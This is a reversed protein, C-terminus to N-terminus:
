SKAPLGRMRRAATRDQDTYGRRRDRAAILKAIGNPRPTAMQVFPLQGPIVAHAVIAVHTISMGPWTRGTGDTWDWDIRQSCPRSKAQLVDRVDPMVYVTFFLSTGDTWVEALDAISKLEDTDSEGAPTHGWCLPHPIGAAQHESFRRAIARLDAATFTQHIPKGDKAYGVLWTGVRLFDKGVRVRGPVSKAPPAGAIRTLFPRAPYPTAVTPSPM